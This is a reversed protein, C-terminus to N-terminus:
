ATWPTSTISTKSDTRIARIRATWVYTGPRTTPRRLTGSKLEGQANDNSHRSHSKTFEEIPLKNLLEAVHRNIYESGSDM